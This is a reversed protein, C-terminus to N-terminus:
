SVPTLVGIGLWVAHAGLPYLHSTIALGFACGPASCEVYGCKVLHHLISIAPVRGHFRIFRYHLTTQAPILDAPPPDLVPQQATQARMRYVEARQVEALTAQLWKSLPRHFMTTMLLHTKRYAKVLHAVQRLLNADNLGFTLSVDYIATPIAYFSRMTDAFEAVHSQTVFPLWATAANLDWNFSPRVVSDSSQVNLWVNSQNVLSFLREFSFGAEHPSSWSNGSVLDWHKVELKANGATIEDLKGRWLFLDRDLGGSSSMRRVYLPPPVPDHAPEGPYHPQRDMTVVWVHHKGQANGIAVFADSGMGLFLSCLLIAHDMLSGFGRAVVTAPTAIQTFRSEACIVPELFADSLPQTSHHLRNAITTSLKSLQRHTADSFGTWASYLPIRSVCHALEHRTYRTSGFQIPMIFSTLPRFTNTEDLGLIAFDRRPFLQVTSELMAVYYNWFNNMSTQQEMSRLYEKIHGEEDEDDIEEDEDLNNLSAPKRSAPAAQQPSLDKKMKEPFKRLWVQETRPCVDLVKAFAGREQTRDTAHLHLIVRRDIGDTCRMPVALEFPKKVTLLVRMLPIRGRALVEGHSLTGMNDFDLLEIAIDHCEVWHVVDHIEGPPIVLNYVLEQDWAPNLTGLIATTQQTMGALTVRVFPDLTAYEIGRGPRFKCRALPALGRAEVVRVAILRQLFAFDTVLGSDSMSRVMSDNPTWLCEPDDLNLFTLFDTESQARRLAAIVFSLNSNTELQFGLSAALERIQNQQQATGNSNLMVARFSFLKRASERKLELTVNYDALFEVFDDFDMTGTCSSDYRYMISRTVDNSLPPGFRPILSQLERVTLRYNAKIAPDDAPTTEVNQRIAQKVQTQLSLGSLASPSTNPPLMQQQQQRQAQAEHVSGSGSVQSRESVVSRSQRLVPTGATQHAREAEVIADEAHQAFIFRYRRLQYETFSEM